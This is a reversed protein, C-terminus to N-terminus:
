GFRRASPGFRVSLSAPDHTVRLPDPGSAIPGSGSPEEYRV